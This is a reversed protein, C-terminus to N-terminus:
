RPTERSEKKNLNNVLRLNPIFTFNLKQLIHHYTGSNWKRMEESLVVMIRPAPGTSNMAEQQKREKKTFHSSNGWWELLSLDTVQGLIDVSLYTIHYDKWSSKEFGDMSGWRESEKKRERERHSWCAWPHLLRLATSARPHDSLALRSHIWKHAVYSQAISENWRLACSIPLCRDNTMKCLGAYLIRYVIWLLVNLLSSM